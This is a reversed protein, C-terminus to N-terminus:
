YNKGNILWIQERNVFLKITCTMCFLFCILWEVKQSLGAQLSLLLKKGRAIVLELRNAAEQNEAELKRIHASQFLLIDTVTTCM